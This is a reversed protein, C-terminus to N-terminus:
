KALGALMGLITATCLQREQIEKSSVPVGINTTPAKVAVNLGEASATEVSRKLSNERIYSLLRLVASHAANSDLVVPGCAEEVEVRDFFDPLGTILKYRNYCVRVILPPSFLTNSPPLIFKNRFSRARINFTKGNVDVPHQIVEKCSFYNQRQYARITQEDVQPCPLIYDSNSKDTPPAPFQKGSMLATARNDLKRTKSKTHRNLGGDGDGGKYGRGSLVTMLLSQMNVENNTNMRSAAGETLKRKKISSPPCPALPMDVQNTSSSTSTAVAATLCDPDSAPETKILYKIDMKPDFPGGEKFLTYKFYLFEGGEIVSVNRAQYAFESGGTTSCIAYLLDSCVCIPQLRASHSIKNSILVEAEMETSRSGKLLLCTWSGNFSTQQTSNNYTGCGGSSSVLLAAHLRKTVAREPNREQEAKHRFLSILPIPKVGIPRKGGYDMSCAPCTVMIAAPSSDQSATTWATMSSVDFNGRITSCACYHLTDTMDFASAATDPKTHARELLVAEILNSIREPVKTGGHNDLSPRCRVAAADVGGGLSGLVRSIRSSLRCGCALVNYWRVLKEATQLDIGMQM